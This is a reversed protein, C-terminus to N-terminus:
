KSLRITRDIDSDSITGLSSVKEITVNAKNTEAIYVFSGFVFWVLLIVISVKEFMTADMMLYSYGIAYLAEENKYDREIIQRFTVISQEYQKADQEGYGKAYLADVAKPNAKVANDLYKQAMKDKKTQLLLGIQLYADANKPDQEVCTQFSSLAKTTDGKEKYVMGKYYYTEPAFMDKEIARNFYKLAGDYDKVYFAYKGAYIYFPIYSSDLILAQNMLMIARKPENSKIFLESSYTYYDHNLSDLTIAIFMDTLASKLDNEAEHIKARKFYLMPNISDKKIAANMDRIPKSISTDVVEDTNVKSSNCQKCGNSCLLVLFTILLLSTTKVIIASPRNM